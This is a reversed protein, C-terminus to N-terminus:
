EVSIHPDTEQTQASVDCGALSVDTTDFVETEEFDWNNYNFFSEVTELQEQTFDQRIQM